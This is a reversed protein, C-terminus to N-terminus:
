QLLKNVEKELEIFMDEDWVKLDYHIGKSSDGDMYRIFLYYMGGFPIEKGQPTNYFNKLFKMFSYSYLKKQISYENLVVSELENPSSLINSKYDVLYYKGNYFFVLDISGTIFSHLSNNTSQNNSFNWYFKLEKRLNEKNIKFLSVKEKQILELPTSLTNKLVLLTENMIRQTLEKIELNNYRKKAYNILGYYHIWKEIEQRLITNNKFDDSLFLSFDLVELLKHYYNGGIIGPEVYFKLLEEEPHLDESEDLKREVEFLDSLLDEQANFNKKISSFSINSFLYKREREQWILNQINSNLSSPDQKELAKPRHTNTLKNDIKFKKFYKNWKNSKSNEINIISNLVINFYYIKKLKNKEKEDSNVFYPLYLRVKPRTLAVYFKRKEENEIYKKYHEVEEEMEMWLSLKWIRQKNKDLTPYDFLKFNQSESISHLFVIPWELGKSAHITLVQVCDEETEKEFLAREEELYTTKQLTKLQEILDEISPKGVKSLELLKRFLQEYNTRKREWTLSFKEDSYILKSDEKISRFLEPFKRMDSLNKWKILLNKEKSDISFEEFYNLKTPHIQFADTLLLKKFAIPNNGNAICELIIILQKSERSQYIGEEQYYIAPINNEKLKQIIYKGQERKNVLIAIDSYKVKITTISNNIEMDYSFKNDILNKIEHIICDTWEKRINDLNMGNKLDLEILQIPPDNFNKNPFIKINNNKPPNVPEYKIPEFGVEELNGMFSDDQFILNYGHVLNSISRYNTTLEQISNSSSSYCDKKAQLYTGLDAGRFGYISQKPDGILYLSRNAQGTSNNHFFFLKKFISYQISDTDQFEDIICIQFREQLNQVLLPNNELAQNVKIIMADYNIWEGKLFDEYAIEYAKLVTSQFFYSQQIYTFFDNLFSYSQIKKLLDYHTTNFNTYNSEQNKYFDEKYIKPFELTRNSFLLKWQLDLNNNKSQILYKLINIFNDLNQKFKKNKETSKLYQEVKEQHHNFDEILKKIIKQNSIIEQITKKIDIERKQPIKYKGSLLKQISPIIITELNQFYEHYYLRYPLEDGWEGFWENHHIQYLAKKTVISNELFPIDESHNTEIPYEQLVYNCFGHITTVVVEDLEYIWKRINQDTSENLKKRLRELLECAAKETFTLILIKTLPVNQKLLEHIIEMIQFTKGTGASAEIFTNQIKIKSMM